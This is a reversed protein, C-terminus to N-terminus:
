AVMELGRALHLNREHERRLHFAVYAEWHGSSVLARLRLVAEAMPLDWCAGTIGMRDQVLHRCAGEIVGTAIPLGMALASAYELFPARKALYDACEDVAERATGKLKRLTASQRLGAALDEMPRTLVKEVYRRVWREAEAERGAHLAMGAQWLYHLVHLLDTVITVRVKRRHAEAEVADRQEDAGDLLVVWTREHAPDRREAEDFMDAIARPMNNTLTAHVRKNRPRPLQSLRPDLERQPAPRLNDVIMAVTRPKPAQDWVATVVAMRRDHTREKRRAMPDGRPRERAELAEKRTAERLARLLMRVGKADCSMVLLDSPDAPTDNVPAQQWAYFTEFDQAMRVVLQQAQRKPVDIGQRRLEALTTDFSRTAAGEAVFRRVMLSYREPPLNLEADAPRITVFHHDRWSLRRVTVDGFITRLTRTAARFRVELTLGAPATPQARERTARADLRGQLVRRAIERVDVLLKVEIQDATLDVDLDRAWTLTQEFQELAPAFPDATPACHAPTTM